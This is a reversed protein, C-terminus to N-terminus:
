FGHHELWKEALERRGSHSRAKRELARFHAKSETSIPQDVAGYRLLLKVAPLSLSRSAAYVPTYGHGAPLNPDAENDLLWKMLSLRPRELGEYPLYTAAILPTVSDGHAPPQDVSAGYELLLELFPIKDHIDSVIVASMLGNGDLEHKLLLEFIALYHQSDTESSGQAGALTKFLIKSEYFECDNAAGFALLLEIIRLPPHNLSVADLLPIIGLEPRNTTPIGRQLLKEVMSCVHDPDALPQRDLQLICEKLVTNDDESVAADFEVLLDFMEKPNWEVNHWTTITFIMEISSLWENGTITPDVGSELLKRVVPASRSEMIAYGLPTPADEPDGGIPARATTVPAGSAIAREVTPLHGHKCGWFLARNEKKTDAIWMDDLVLDKFDKCSSALNKRSGFPLFSAIHLLMEVPM